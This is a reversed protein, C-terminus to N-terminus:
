GVLLVILRKPGHVGLILIKEIDSTRSPGTLIVFEGRTAPDSARCQLPEWAAPLHERLQDVTAVVVCTPVLYCLLRDQATNCAIVSSGTDALLCEPAILSAPLDAMSVPTWDDAPLAAQQASLGSSAERCMPRDMVAVRSWGEKLVMDTLKQRAEDMTACRIVEGRLAVLEQTFREAMASASPQQRPWVESTPPLAADPRDGLATRIRSLVTDRSSM